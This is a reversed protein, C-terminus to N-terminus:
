FIKFILNNCFLPLCVLLQSSLQDASDTVPLCHSSIDKEKLLSLTKYSGRHCKEFYWENEWLEKEGTLLGRKELNTFTHPAYQENGFIHLM